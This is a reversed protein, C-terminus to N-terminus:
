HRVVVRKLVGGGRFTAGGNRVTFGTLLSGRAGSGQCWVVVAAGGGVIVTNNTSPDPDRNGDGFEGTGPYTGGAYGGKITVQKGDITVNETYTGRAVKTTAGRGSRATARSRLLLDLM